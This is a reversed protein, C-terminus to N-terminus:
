RLWLLRMAGGRAELGVTPDLPDAVSSAERPQLAFRHAVTGDALTTPGLYRTQVYGCSINVRSKKRM